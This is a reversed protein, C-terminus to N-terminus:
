AAASFSQASLVDRVFDVSRRAVQEMDGGTFGHGAGEVVILEAGLIDAARRSYDPPVYPDDTGHFLLAPGTYQAMVQYIYLTLMDEVYVRGVVHEGITVNDPIEGQAALERCIDQLDFAPYLLILGAEDASRKGAVFASIFGGQSGGFLFIGDEAFRADALVSMDKMNGDSLSEESGGIYDFVFAAIGSDSFFEAYPEMIHHNSGLGHSLIVLPLPSVADEPLYLKGYLKKGGRELYLEETQPSTQAEARASPASFVCFLAAFLLLSVSLLRMRTKVKM